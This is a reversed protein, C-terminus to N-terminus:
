MTLKIESQENPMPIIINLFEDAFLRCKDLYEEFDFTDSETTSKPLKIIEGSSENVLEKYNFNSKLFEHTADPTLWEGQTEFLGNQICPIIVGWYYRNQQNSRKKKVKSITVTVVSNKFHRLLLETMVSRYNIKLIGNDDVTGIHEIKKM